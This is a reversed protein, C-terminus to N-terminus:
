ALAKEAARDAYLGAATLYRLPNGRQRLMGDLKSLAIDRLSRLREVDDIRDLNPLRTLDALRKNTPNWTKLNIMLNRRNPNQKSVIYVYARCTLLDLGKESFLWNEKGM